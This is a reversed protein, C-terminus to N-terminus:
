IGVHIKQEMGYKRNVREDTYPDEARSHTLVHIERPLVAPLRILLSCLNAQRLENIRRGGLFRETNETTYSM